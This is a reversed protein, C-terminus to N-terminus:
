KESIDLAVIKNAFFFKGFIYKDSASETLTIVKGNYHDLGEAMAPGTFESECKGLLYVPAGDITRGSDTAKSEDYIYYVSDSLGYSTSMVIKGDPTFCIGQVKNPISYIRDPTAIHEDGGGDDRLIFEEVPYRSAIAYNLGSDPDYFPHETVYKGGDHFEGVYIYNDDAYIFSASNNVGISGQINIASGNEAKMLDTLSVLHVKEGSAIYVTNGYVAIGGAHGTFAEGNAKNLSVYYSNDSTDTVYIRSASDDKMYGSVLIKGGAEYACIGQCIFGDGLGPNECVNSKIEYYDWYIPYKALFLVGWAFILFALTGGIISIIIIILKKLFKKM